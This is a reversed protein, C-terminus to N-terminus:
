RGVGCFSFSSVFVYLFIVVGVFKVFGFFSFIYVNQIVLFKKINNKLTIKKNKM